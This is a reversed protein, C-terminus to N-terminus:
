GVGQKAILAVWGLGIAQLTLGLVMFPRNGYRDALGGALPAILM